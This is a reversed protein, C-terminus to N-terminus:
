QGQAWQSQAAHRGRVDVSSSSIVDVSRRFSVCRAIVAHCALFLGMSGLHVRHVSKEVFHLQGHGTEVVAGIPSALRATHRDVVDLQRRPRQYSLARRATRSGQRELVGSGRGAPRSADCLAGTATWRVAPM